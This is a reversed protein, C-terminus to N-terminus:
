KDVIIAKSDTVVTYTYHLATCERSCSVGAWRVGGWEWGGLNVDGDTKNAQPDTNKQPWPLDINVRHHLWRLFLILMDESCHPPTILSKNNWCSCNLRKPTLSPSLPFFKCFPLSLLSFNVCNLFTLIYSKWFFGEKQSAAAIYHTIFYTGKCLCLCSNYSKCKPWLRLNAGFFCSRSEAKNAHHCVSPAALLCVCLLPWSAGCLALRHGNGNMGRFPQLPCMSATKLPAPPLIVFHNM